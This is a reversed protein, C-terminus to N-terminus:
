YEGRAVRASMIRELMDPHVGRARLADADARMRYWGEFFRLRCESCVGVSADIRGTAELTETAEATCGKLACTM